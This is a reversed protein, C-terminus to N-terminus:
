NALTVADPKKESEKINEMTNMATAYEMAMREHDPGGFWVVNSTPTGEDGLVSVEVQIVMTATTGTEDEYRKVGYRIM